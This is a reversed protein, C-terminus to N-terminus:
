CRAGDRSAFLIADPDPKFKEFKKFLLSMLTTFKKNKLSFKEEESITLDTKIYKMVFKIKLADFILNVVYFKYKSGTSKPGQDLGITRIRIRIRCFPESGKPDPDVVRTM